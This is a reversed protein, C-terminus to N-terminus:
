NYQQNDAIIHLPKYAKAEHCKTPGSKACKIGQQGTMHRVLLNCQTSHCLVTNARLSGSDTCLSNVEQMPRHRTDRAQSQTIDTNDAANSIKLKWNLKSKKWIDTALCCLCQPMSNTKIHLIPCRVNGFIQTPVNGTRLTCPTLKNTFKRRHTIM